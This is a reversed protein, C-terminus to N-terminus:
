KNNTFTNTQQIEPSVKNDTPAVKSGFIGLSGPAKAKFLEPAKAEVNDFTDSTTKIHLLKGDRAFCREFSDDSKRKELSLSPYRNEADEFRKTLEPNQTPPDLLMKVGYDREEYKKDKTFVTTINSHKSPLTAM